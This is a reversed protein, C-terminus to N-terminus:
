VWTLSKWFVIKDDGAAWFDRIRAEETFGNKRYFARTRAFADAGSTDAILIRQRRERLGAELHHCLVGGVGRGQVGPLVAIALMNWAGDALPEPSAYCFGIAKGGLEATLWIDPSENHSLHGGLIGYLMEPPFLGTGELVAQLGAIDERTTPKVKKPETKGNTVM